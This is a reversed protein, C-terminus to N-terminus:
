VNQVMNYKLYIVPNLMIIRVKIGYM